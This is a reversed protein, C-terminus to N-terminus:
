SGETTSQMAQLLARLESETLDDVLVTGSTTTTDSARVQGVAQLTAEAQDSNLSDSVLPLALGVDAPPRASNHRLMLGAGVLVVVAAAVRLARWTWRRAPVDTVPETRLRALVRAAVREADVRAAARSARAELADLAERLEQPVENVDDM